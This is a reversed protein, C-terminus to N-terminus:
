DEEDAYNWGFGEKDKNKEKNEKFAELAGKKEEEMESASRSDIFLYGVVGILMLVGVIGIIQIFGIGGGEDVEEEPGEETQSAASVSVDLSQDGISASYTQESDFTERFEVVETEGASLDEVTQQLENDGITLSIDKDGATGGSNTVTVYFTVTEGTEPNQPASSIDTVEIDAEETDDNGLQSDLNSDDNDDTTGSSTGGGDDNNEDNNNNNNNNDTSTSHDLTASGRTEFTTTEGTDSGDVYLTLTENDYSDDFSISTSYDGNSDTSTSAISSGDNFIDISTDSVANDDETVTGSVTFDEKVINRGEYDVKDSSGQSFTVDKGTNIDETYVDLTEGDYNSDYPIKIDYYGTSDTLTSSVVSGDNYFSVNIDNVPGDTDTIDGYVHHPIEPVASVSTATSILLAALLIYRSTKM